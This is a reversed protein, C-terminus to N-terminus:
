LCAYGLSFDHLHNRVIAGHVHLCIGEVEEVVRTYVPLIDYLRFITNM